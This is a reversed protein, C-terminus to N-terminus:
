MLIKVVKDAVKVIYLQGADVAIRNTVEEAMKQTVIAGDTTYLTINDGEACGDITIIGEYGSVKVANARMTKVTNNVQEYAVNLESSGTITPTTLTNDDKLLSTIDEGNFTVSHVTWNESPTICVKYTRGLDVAIGVAGNDAQRITLYDPTGGEIESINYFGSWGTMVQYKLISGQPVYLMANEYVEESFINGTTTPPQAAYITIKEIEECGSFAGSDIKRLGKGLTLKKICALGSFTIQKIETVGDPIVLETVLEGNLYLNHAYYLPNSTFYRTDFEIDLWAEISSIHVETLNSCGSFAFEGISTVSEPITISTLSICGYFADSGISTLHSTDPITISTLSICDRFANDGISTVKDGIIVKIFESGRFPCNDYRGYEGYDGSPIDSNIMLEGTCGSFAGGGISTVGEPITINKLSSCGNFADGGISTVGEPITISILSSCGNFADDGISTVGEPITISILSSYGNFADDGIQYNEGQYDTPLTLETDDGIYGILYHVGDITEFGYDDILKEANIVRDAYCAVHGNSESGKQIDLDSYNIVTKLNYCGDFAYDGISTVSEPITITTLNNCYAFAHEGISTVSEPFVISTLDSCNYFAYNGISTVSEPIITSSCGVLLHNYSTQIIANCNDRSDFTTNSEEVIINRLGSCGFTNGYDEISTVGAPITISTIGSCSNFASWNIANVPRYLGETDEYGERSCDITDPVIFEGVYEKDIYDILTIYTRSSSPAYDINYRVGNIVKEYQAWFAAKVTMSCLLAAMTVLWLKTKRM